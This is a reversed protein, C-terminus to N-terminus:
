SHAANPEEFAMCFVFSEWFRLTYLHLHQEELFASRYDFVRRCESLPAGADTETVAIVNSRTSEALENVNLKSMEWSLLYLEPVNDERECLRIDKCNALPMVRKHDRYFLCRGIKIAVQQLRYESAPLQLVGPPLIIGKATKSRANRMISRLLKPTQPKAARRRLDDFLLRAMPQNANAVLPYLAHYFYEEDDKSQANCSSHTPVTWLNLGDRLSKPYFQKPPVHERTIKDQGTGPQGCLCCIDTGAGM